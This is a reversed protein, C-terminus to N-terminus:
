EHCGDEGNVPSSAVNDASRQSTAIREGLARLVVDYAVTTLHVGDPEFAQSRIASLEEVLDIVMGGHSRVVEMAATAYRRMVEDLRDSSGMLRAEDVGLSALFIVRCSGLGGLTQELTATFEALPVCNWPAADNTGVSVVVIGSPQFRALQDGLAHVDAGGVAGNVVACGALQELEHLRAASINALHSDGVLLVPLM